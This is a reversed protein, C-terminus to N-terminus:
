LGALVGAEANFDGIMQDWRAPQAFLRPWLDRDHWLQELDAEDMQRQEVWNYYKLNHIAGCEGEGCGEKTGVLGRRERLWALAVGRDADTLPVLVDNLLCTGRATM